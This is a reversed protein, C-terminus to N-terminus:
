GNAAAIMAAWVDTSSDTDFIAQWGVLLMKDTAEVPVVVAEVAVGEANLATLRQGLRLYYGDSWHDDAM